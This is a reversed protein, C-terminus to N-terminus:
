IFFFQSVIIFWSILLAVQWLCIYRIFMYAPICGEILIWICIHYVDIPLFLTIPEGQFGLLLIWRQNLHCTTRTWPTSKASANERWILSTGGSAKLICKRKSGTLNSCCQLEVFHFWMYTCEKYKLLHWTSWFFQVFLYVVNSSFFPCSFM